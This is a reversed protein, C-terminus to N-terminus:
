SSWPLLLPQACAFLSTNRHLKKKKQRTQFFAHWGWFPLWGNQFYIPYNILASCTRKALTKENSYKRDGYMHSKKQSLLLTPLLCFFFLLVSSFTSLSDRQKHFNTFSVTVPNPWTQEEEAHGSLPWSIGACHLLLHILRWPCRVEVAHGLDARCRGPEESVGRLQPPRLQKYLQWFHINWALGSHNRCFLLTELIFYIFKNRGDIKWYFPIKKKLVTGHKRHLM